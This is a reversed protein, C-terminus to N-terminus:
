FVTIGLDDMVSKDKQKWYNLSSLILYFINCVDSVIRHTDVAPQIFAPVGHAKVVDEPIYITPLDKKGRAILWADIRAKNAPDLSNVWAALATKSTLTTPVKVFAAPLPVTPHWFEAWGSNNKLPSKDKYSECDNIRLLRLYQRDGKMVSEIVTQEIKAVRHLIDMLSFAEGNSLHKHIDIMLQNAADTIAKPLNSSKLHVGKIMLKSKALVNREKIIVNGYYTKTLRVTAVASASLEPKMQIKDLDYDALGLNVSYQILANDVAIDKLIALVGMTKINDNTPYESGSYWKVFKALSAINSDTDSGVIVSRTVEKTYAVNPPLTTCMIIPELIQRYEALVAHINYCVSAIHVVLAEEMNYYNNGKGICEEILVHHAATLISDHTKKIYKIAASKDFSHVTDGTFRLKTIFTKIFHENHIALNWMNGAYMVFALQYPTLKSLVDKLRREAELNTFYRTSINIFYRAVEETSPCTLNATSIAHNIAQGNRSYEQLLALAYHLASNSHLLMLDGALLREVVINASNTSLRATSTLTSHNSKNGMPTSDIGYIGSISNNGTKIAVQLLDQYEALVKNGSTEADFAQQKVETRWALRKLILGSHFSLRTDKNLYATLTPAVIHKNDKLSAFHQSLPVNEVHKDECNTRTFTTLIPEEKPLHTNLFAAIQEPTQGKMALYTTLQQIGLQKIDLAERTYSAPPLIYHTHNDQM